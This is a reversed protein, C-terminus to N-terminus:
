AACQLFQGVFRRRHIRQSGKQIPQAETTDGRGVVPQLRAGEKPKTCRANGTGLPPPALRYALPHALAVGWTRLPFRGSGAAPSLIPALQNTYCTAFSNASHKRCLASRGRGPD